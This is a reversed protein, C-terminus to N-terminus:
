QHEADNHIISKIQSSNTKNKINRKCGLVISVHKKLFRINKKLDGFTQGLVIAFV